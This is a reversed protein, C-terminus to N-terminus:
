PPVCSGVLLAWTAMSNRLLVPATSEKLASGISVSTSTEGPRTPPGNRQFSVAGDPVTLTLTFAETVSLSQTFSSPTEIMAHAAVAAVVGDVVDVVTAGVVM